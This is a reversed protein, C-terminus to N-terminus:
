EDDDTEEAWRYAIASEFVGHRLSDLRSLRSDDRSKKDCCEVGLDHRPSDLRSLRSDDRSKKGCTDVLEAKM